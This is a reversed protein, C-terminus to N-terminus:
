FPPQLGQRLGWRKIDDAWPPIPGNYGMMYPPVRAMYPPNIVESEENSEEDEEFEEEGDGEVEEEVDEAESEALEEPDEVPEEPDEEQDEKPDEDIWRGNGRNPFYPDGPHHFGAM